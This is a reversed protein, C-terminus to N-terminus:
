DMTKDERILVTGESTAEADNSYLTQNAPKLKISLLLGNSIFSCSGNLHLFRQQGGIEAAIWAACGGKHLYDTLLM